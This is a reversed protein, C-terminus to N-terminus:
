IMLLLIYAILASFIQVLVGKITKSILRDIKLYTKMTRLFIEINWRQLYIWHIYLDPLNMIDKLYDKREGDIVMSVLRLTLGNRFEVIKSYAYAKNVGYKANRKIRTVFKIGKDKLKMFRKLDYYGLEFKLVSQNLTNQDIGEIIEEFEPSNNM